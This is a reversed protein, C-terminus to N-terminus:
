EETYVIESEEKLQALGEEMKANAKEAYIESRLAEALDESLEVAGEPVDKLYYLIHVQDDFVIPESYDGIEQMDDGFAAEM